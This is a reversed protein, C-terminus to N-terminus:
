DFCDFENVPGEFDGAFPCNNDFGFFPSFFVFGDDNFDHFRFDNFHNDNFRNFHFDNNDNAMAPAVSAVLMMAMAAVVALVLKIRRM